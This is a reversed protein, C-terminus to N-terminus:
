SGTIVSSLAMGRTMKAGSKTMQEADADGRLDGEGEDQHGHQDEEGDERADPLHVPPEDLADDREPAPAPREHAVDIEGGHRGPHQAIQLDRDAKGEGARTHALEDGR